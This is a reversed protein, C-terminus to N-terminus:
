GGSQWTHIFDFQYLLNLVNLTLNDRIMVGVFLEAVLVFSVSVWVPLRRAMVFGTIMSLSDCISNLISDGTYGAALAQERYHNIVWPTNELIEWSAELGLAIFFRYRLPWRPFLWTLLGYFLIGHIIHSFTYWDTVQQSNGASAVVGEWLKLEGCACFFPQGFIYLITAQVAIVIIAGCLMVQTKIM